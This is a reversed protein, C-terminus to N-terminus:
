FCMQPSSTGTIPRKATRTILAQALMMVIWAAGQHYTGKTPFEEWGDGRPALQHRATGQKNEPNALNAGDVLVRWFAM